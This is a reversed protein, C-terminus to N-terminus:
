LCTMTFNSLLRLKTQLLLIKKTKSLVEESPESSLSLKDSSLCTEVGSCFVPTTFDGLQPDELDPLGPFLDGTDKNLSLYRSTTRTICSPIDCIESIMLGYKYTFLKFYLAFTYARFFMPMIDIHKFIDRKVCVHLLWFIDNKKEFSTINSLLPLNLM